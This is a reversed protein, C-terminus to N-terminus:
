QDLAVAAIINQFNELVDASRQKLFKAVASNDLLKVLYGRALVLNLVDQGYTQEVTKYQSKLNNMEREMKLVQEQSLGALKKSKGHVLTEAPTAM